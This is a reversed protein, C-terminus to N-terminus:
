HKWACSKIPVVLHHKAGEPNIDVLRALFATSKEPLSDFAFSIKQGDSAIAKGSHINGEDDILELRLVDPKLM